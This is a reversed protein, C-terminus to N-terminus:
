EDEMSDLNLVSQYRYYRDRSKNLESFDWIMPPIAPSSPLFEFSEKELKDLLIIVDAPRMNHLKKCLDGISWFPLAISRFLTCLDKWTWQRFERSNRMRALKRPLKNKHPEGMRASMRLDGGRVEIGILLIFYGLSKGWHLTPDSSFNVESKLISDSM